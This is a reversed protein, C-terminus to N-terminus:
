EREQEVQKNRKSSLRCISVLLVGSALGWAIVCIAGIVFGETVTDIM